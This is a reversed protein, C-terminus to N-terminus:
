LGLYTVATILLTEGPRHKDVQLMVCVGHMLSLSNERKWIFARHSTHYATRVFPPSFQIALPIKPLGEVHMRGDLLM